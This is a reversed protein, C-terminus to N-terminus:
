FINEGTKNTNSPIFITLKAHYEIKHYSSKGDIITASKKKRLWIQKVQNCWNIIVKRVIQIGIKRMLEKEIHRYVIIQIKKEKNIKQQAVEGYEEIKRILKLENEQPDELIFLLDEVFAQSKYQERKIEM